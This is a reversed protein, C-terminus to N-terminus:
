PRAPREAREARHKAKEVEITEQYEKSLEVPEGGFHCRYYDGAGDIWTRSNHFHGFHNAKFELKNMVFDLFRSVPDNFKPSNPNDLFAMMVSDPCTHSFVYDVKWGIKDLNDLTNEEESKSYSEQPWWSQGETRWEKDISLAKPMALITKGNINYIEGTKALYVSNEGIQYEYAEGGFINCTPLAEIRDWGEHNGPVIFSTWKKNALWKMWYVENSKSSENWIIGFDGLQVWVDSKDLEKGESWNSTGLISIDGHTDGSLFIKNM